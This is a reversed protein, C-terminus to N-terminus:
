SLDVFWFRDISEYLLVASAGFSAVVMAFNSYHQITIIAFIGIFSFLSSCIIDILDKRPPCDIDEVGNSLVGYKSFYNNM